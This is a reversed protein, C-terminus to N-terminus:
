PNFPVAKAWSADGAAAGGGPTSCSALVSSGVGAVAMAALGQLLRRRSVFASGPHNNMTAAQPMLDRM